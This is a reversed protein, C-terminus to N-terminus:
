GEAILLRSDIEDAIFDGAEKSHTAKNSEMVELRADNMKSMMEELEETAHLTDTKAGILCVPSEVQALKPWLDYTSITLACKKLRKPEAADLTGEYKAVQEPEKKKDLRFNRLYWKTIGKIPRYLSVPSCKIMTLAWTPINFECIPSILFSGHPTRRNLSLYDLIVTAGLSSGAFYFAEKEPITQQLVGELDEAMREISFELKEIDGLKASIKERTEVYLTRYRPTLAKLVEKWGDILSIWGAVFVLVPKTPDYDEPIFDIVQLEVGDSVKIYYTKLDVGDPVFSKDFM